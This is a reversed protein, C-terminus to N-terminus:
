RLGFSPRASYHAPLPILRSARLITMRLAQLTLGPGLASLFRALLGRRRPEVPSVAHGPAAEVAVLVDNSDM